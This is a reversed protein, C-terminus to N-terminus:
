RSPRAEQPDRGFAALVIWSLAMVLVFNVCALVTAYGFDWNKFGQEYLYTLTVETARHPGGMTLLQVLAFINMASIVLYVVSVRMISWLMPLTIKRFRKFGGAGDLKAAEVVEDPIGRIGASLLMIYFGLAYWVFVATVAWLASSGKGLWDISLRGLHLANLVGDLLGSRPMYVFMWMVSVIVLSMIQPLLFTGRLVSIARGKGQLCHAVILAGVLIAAGGVVLILVNHAVTPLVVPDAALQRYNDLGVFRKDGSMGNWRFLSIAFAQLVPWCVFLGYLIAAPALFSVVFATRGRKIM